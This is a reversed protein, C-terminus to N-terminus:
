PSTVTLTFAGAGEPPNMTNGDVIFDSDVIIYYTGATTATYMFTENAGDLGADAGKVCTTIPNASCVTSAGPGVLSISGDYGADLGSLTVTIPQAATLIVSYAVDPGPQGFGTCGTGELGSDYNDSAGITTGTVPTDIIIPTATACTDNAPATVCADEYCIKSATSCNAVPAAMLDCDPDNGCMCDCTVGDNYKAAACTWSNPVADHSPAFDAVNACAGGPVPTSMFSMQDITVEQLKLNSISGMLNNTTVPDAALTISGSQQFFTKVPSGTSDLENVTICVDCTGYNNQVGASLDITGTQGSAYFEIAYQLTDGADISGTMNGDWAIYSNMPDSNGFDLTSETISSCIEADRSADAPHADVTKTNNNSGCAAVLVLLSVTRSLM